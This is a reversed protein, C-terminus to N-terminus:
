FLSSWFKGNVIFNRKIKTIKVKKSPKLLEHFCVWNFKELSFSDEELKQSKKVKKPPKPLTKICVQDFKWISLPIEKSRQPKKVKKHPKLWESFCNWSFREM